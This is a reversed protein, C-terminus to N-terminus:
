SIHKWIRGNLVNYITRRAIGYRVALALPTEHSSRIERVDDETLKAQPHKAGLHRPPSSGRGKQRMDTLNDERTGTFLHDPNVCAPVDCKHLICIDDSLSGHKLEWAYRHAYIAKGNHRFQGHGFAPKTGLWLWCGSESDKEVKSWFRCENCCFLQGNHALEFTSGCFSCDKMM